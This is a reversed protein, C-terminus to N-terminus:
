DAAASWASGNPMRFVPLAQWAQTARGIGDADMLRAGCDSLEGHMKVTAAWLQQWYQSASELDFRLLDTQIHILEAPECRGKLRELASAHQALARHAAHEQVKRMAEFGRFVACLAQTGVLMQSRPLEGAAAVPDIAPAAAAGESRKATTSM